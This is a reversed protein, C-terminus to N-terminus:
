LDPVNEKEWVPTKLNSKSRYMVNKVHLYLDSEGAFYNIPQEIAPLGKSIDQWTQGGDTSKYILNTAGAKNTKQEQLSGPFHSPQPSELPHDSVFTFQFLLLFCLNYIINM